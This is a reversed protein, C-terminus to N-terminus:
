PDWGANRLAFDKNRYGEAERVGIGHTFISKFWKIAKDSRVRSDWQARSFTDNCANFRQFGEEIDFGCAEDSPLHRPGHYLEEPTPQNDVSLPEPLNGRVPVAERAEGGGEPSENM